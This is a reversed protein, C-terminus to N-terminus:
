YVQNEAQLTVGLSKEIALLADTNIYYALNVNPIASRLEQKMMLM